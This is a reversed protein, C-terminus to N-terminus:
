SRLFDGRAISQVNVHERRRPERKHAKWDIEQGVGQSARLPRVERRLNPGTVM